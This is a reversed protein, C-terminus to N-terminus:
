HVDLEGVIRMGAVDKPLHPSQGHEVQAVGGPDHLLEGIAPADIAIAIDANGGEIGRVAPLRDADGEDDVPRLMLASEPEVTLLRGAAVDAIRRAGVGGVARFTLTVLGSPPDSFMAWGLKCATGLSAERSAAGEETSRLASNSATSMAEMRACSSRSNIPSTGTLVRIRSIAESSSTSRM